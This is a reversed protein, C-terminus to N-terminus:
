PRGVRRKARRYLRAGLSRIWHGTLEGLEAALAVTLALAV